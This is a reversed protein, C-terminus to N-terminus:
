MEAMDLYYTIEEINSVGYLNSMEGLTQSAVINAM